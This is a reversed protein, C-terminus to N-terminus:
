MTQSCSCLQIHQTQSFVPLGTDLLFRSDRALRATFQVFPSICLSLIFFKEWLCPGAKPMLCSTSISALKEKYKFALAPLPLSTGLM